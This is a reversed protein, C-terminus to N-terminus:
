LWKMVLSQRAFFVRSFLGASFNHFILVFHFSIGGPKRIQNSTTVLGTNSGEVVWKVFHAVWYGDRRGQTIGQGIVNRHWSLSVSHHWLPLLGTKQAAPSLLRHALDGGLSVKLLFWTTRSNWFYNRCQTISSECILHQMDQNELHEECSIFVALQYASNVKQTPSRSADDM